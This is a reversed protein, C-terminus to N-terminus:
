KGNKEIEELKKMANIVWIVGAIFSLIAIVIVEFLDFSM